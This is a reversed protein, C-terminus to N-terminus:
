VRTNQSASTAYLDSEIHANVKDFPISDSKQLVIFTLPWFHFKTKIIEDSMKINQYTTYEYICGIIEFVLM